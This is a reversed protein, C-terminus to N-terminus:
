QPPERKELQEHLIQRTIEVCQDCTTEIVKYDACDIEAADLIDCVREIM